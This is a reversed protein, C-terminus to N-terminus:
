ADVAFTRGPSKRPAPFAGVRTVAGRYCVTKGARNSPQHPRLHRHQSRRMQAAVVRHIGPRAPGVAAQDAAAVVEVVAAEEEEEEKGVVAAVEAEGVAAVAM